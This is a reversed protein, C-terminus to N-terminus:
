YFMLYIKKSYYLESMDQLNKVDKVDQGILMAVVKDEDLASIHPSHKHKTNQLEPLIKNIDIKRLLEPQEVKLENMILRAAAEVAKIHVISEDTYM